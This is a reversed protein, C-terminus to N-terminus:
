HFLGCFTATVTRDATMYLVREGHVRGLIRSVDHREDADDAV